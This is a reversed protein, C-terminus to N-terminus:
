VCRSSFLTLIGTHLGEGFTAASEVTVLCFSVPRSALESDQLIITSLKFDYRTKHHTSDITCVDGGYRRVLDGARRPVWFLYSLAGCEDVEYRM